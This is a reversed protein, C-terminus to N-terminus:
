FSAGCAECRLVGSVSLTDCYGCRQSEPEACGGAALPLWQVDSGAETCVFIQDSSADFWLDGEVAEAESRDGVWFSSM